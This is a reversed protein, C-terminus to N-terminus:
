TRHLLVLKNSSKDDWIETLWSKQVNITSHHIVNIILGRGWIVMVHIQQTLLWRRKTEKTKVSREALGPGKLMRCPRVEECGNHTGRGWGAGLIEKKHSAEARAVEM